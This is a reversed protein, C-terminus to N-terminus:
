DNAHTNGHRVVEVIDDAWVDIVEVHYAINVFKEDFENYTYM